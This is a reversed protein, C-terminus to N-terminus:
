DLLYRIIDLQCPKKMWVVDMALVKLVRNRIQLKHTIATVNASPTLSSNFTIGLIKPHNVVLIQAGNVVTGLNSKVDKARTTFLTTM